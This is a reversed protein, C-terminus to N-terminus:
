SAPRALLNTWLSSNTSIRACVLLTKTTQFQALQANDASGVMDPMGMLVSVAMEMGSNKLLADQSM